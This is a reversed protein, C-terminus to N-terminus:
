SGLTLAPVLGFPLGGGCVAPPLDRVAEAVLNKEFARRGGLRGPDEILPLQAKDQESM